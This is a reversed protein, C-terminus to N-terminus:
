VLSRTLSRIKNNNISYVQTNSFVLIDGSSQLIFIPNKIPTVIIDLGSSPDDSTFVVGDSRLCFVTSQVINIGVQNEVSLIDIFNKSQGDIISDAALSAVLSASNLMGTASVFIGDTTALIYKNFFKVISNVSYNLSSTSIQSFLNNNFTAYINKALCLTASGANFFRFVIDPDSSQNASDIPSYVKYFVSSSISNLYLGSSTSLVFDVGNTYGSMVKSSFGSYGISYKINFNMDFSVIRNSTFIFISENVVYGNIIYEGDEFSTNVINFELDGNLTAIGNIGIVIVTHNEISIVQQLPGISKNSVISGFSKKSVIDSENVSINIMNEFNTVFSNKNNISYKQTSYMKSYTNRM